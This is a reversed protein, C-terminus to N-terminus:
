LVVRPRSYMYAVDDAVLQGRASLSTLTQHNIASKATSAAVRSTAREILPLMDSHARGAGWRQRKGSWGEKPVMRVGCQWMEGTM